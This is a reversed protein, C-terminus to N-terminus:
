MRAASLASYKSTLQLIQWQEAPLVFLASLLIECLQPALLGATIPRTRETLEVVSYTPVALNVLPWVIDTASHQTRSHPVLLVSFRLAFIRLAVGSALTPKGQAQLFTLILNVEGGEM